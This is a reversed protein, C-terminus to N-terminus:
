CRTTFQSLYRYLTAPDLSGLAELDKLDPLNVELIGDTDDDCFEEDTLVEISVPAYKIDFSDTVFCHEQSIIKIDDIALDNGCAGNTIDNNLVIEVTTNTGSNFNLSYIIWNPNSENVVNGTTNTALIAGTADEVEFVIRSDISM